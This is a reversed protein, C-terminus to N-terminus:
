QIFNGQLNEMSSVELTQRIRNYIVVPTLGSNEFVQIQGKMANYVHQVSVPTESQSKDVIEYFLDKTYFICFRPDYRFQESYDNMQENGTNLDVVNIDNSTNDERKDKLDVQKRSFIKQFFKKIAM